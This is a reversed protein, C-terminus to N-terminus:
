GALHVAVAAIDDHCKFRPFKQIDPDDAEMRRIHCKLGKLGLKRYVRVLRDFSKVRVPTRSPLSLGDTFLLITKINDREVMGGRVFDLADPDGNLVGYDRNMRSRVKMIQEHFIDSPKFKLKKLLSLTEFDHDEKRSLVTHTDDNHILIIQADGTQFWEIGSKKVRIVAASTSWLTHRQAMDLRQEVMKSRIAKNALLGLASLPFHNKSFENKATQAAIFGGTLNDYFRRRDLSSAGDFVGFINNEILLCDENRSGSGKEHIYDIQFLDKTATNTM